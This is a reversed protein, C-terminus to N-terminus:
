DHPFNHRVFGKVRDNFYIISTFSVSIGIGEIPYVQQFFENLRDQWANYKNGVNFLRTLYINYIGFDSIVHNVGPYLKEFYDHYNCCVHNKQGNFALMKYRHGDNVYYGIGNKEYLQCPAGMPIYNTLKLYDAKQSIAEDIYPKLSEFWRPIFEEFAKRFEPTLKDAGPLGELKFQVTTMM